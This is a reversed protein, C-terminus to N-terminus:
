RGEVCSLRRRDSTEAECAQLREPDRDKAGRLASLCDYRKGKSEFLQACLPICPASDATSHAMIHVCELAVEADDFSAVCAEIRDAPSKGAAGALKACVLQDEGEFGTVCAQLVTAPEWAVEAYRSICASAYGYDEFALGCARVDGSPDFRTEQTRWICKIGERGAGFSDVCADIVATAVHARGVLSEVCEFQHGVIDLRGCAQVEEPGFNRTLGKRVCGEYRDEDGFTAHCAQSLPHGLDNMISRIETERQIAAEWEAQLQADRAAQAQRAQEQRALEALQELAGEVDEVSSSLTPTSASTSSSWSSSTGSSSTGGAYSGGGGGTGGGTIPVSVTRGSGGPWTISDFDGLDGYVSITATMGAPWDGSALELARSMQTLEVHSSRDYGPQQYQVVITPATGMRTLPEIQAWTDSSLSYSITVGAEASLSLGTFVLPRAYVSTSILLLPWLRLFPSM